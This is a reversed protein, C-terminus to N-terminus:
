FLPKVLNNKDWLLGLLCFYTKINIWVFQLQKFNKVRICVPSNNLSLELFWIKYNVTYQNYNTVLEVVVDDYKM